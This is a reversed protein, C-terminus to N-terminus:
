ADFRTRRFLAGGDALIPAGHMFCITDFELRKLAALTRRALPVDECAPPLSPQGLNVCTDATFLIGNGREWLFANQGACHGAAHITLLDPLFPPREGDGLFSDVAVPEVEKIRGLLLRSIVWNRLGPSPHVPRFGSGARMIPADIANAWVRSGTLRKLEAAGGIHDPHAHSLILHRVDEARHGLQRLARVVTAASGPFGSDLLAIGDNTELVYINVLGRIVHLGETIRRLRRM